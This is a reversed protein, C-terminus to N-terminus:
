TVDNFITLSHKEQTTSIEIKLLNQVVVSDCHLPSMPPAHWTAGGKLHRWQLQVSRTSCSSRVPRRSSALSANLMPACRSRERNLVQPECRWPAKTVVRDWEPQHQQLGGAPPAVQLCAGGVETGNTWQLPSTPRGWELVPSKGVKTLNPWPSNIGRPQPPRHQPRDTKRRFVLNPDYLGGHRDEGHSVSQMPDHSDHPAGSDWLFLGSLEISTGYIGYDGGLTRYFAPTTATVAGPAIQITIQDPSLDHSYCM